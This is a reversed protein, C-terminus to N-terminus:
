NSLRRDILHQQFSPIPMIVRDNERHIIGARIMEGIFEQPKMDQSMTEAPDREEDWPRKRLLKLIMSEDCGDKGIVEAIDALLNACATIRSSILRNVYHNKRMLDGAGRVRAEDVRILNCDNDRLEQALVCMYNHLHQPWGNSWAAIKGAIAADEFGKIQHAELLHRVSEAAESESLPALTRMQGESLRSIGAEALRSQSWALGALVMMIPLGHEGLHLYSLLEEGEPRLNQIEDITLVVPRLVPLASRYREPLHDRVTEMLSRDYLRWLHRLTLAGRPKTEANRINVGIVGLDPGGEMELNKIRNLYDAGGSRIYDAIVATLGAEDKLDKTSVRISIPGASRQAWSQRLHSLLASKGAGPAGQVLWTLEDSLNTRSRIIDSMERGDILRRMEGVTDEIGTLIDRRGVFYLAPQKDTRKSFRDLSLKKQEVSMTEMICRM